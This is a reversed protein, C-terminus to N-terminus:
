KLVLKAPIIYDRRSAFAQDFHELLMQTAIRGMNVADRDLYSYRLNLLDLAEVQDFGMCYVDQGPTLGREMMAKVFGNAIVGNSLLVAEPLGAADVWALALEHAMALTVERESTFVVSEEIPLAGDQMAQRFGALRDQGIQLSTDSIISGIRRYGQQIMTHTALYAGNYNDFYVGDWSTKRAARDILVVPVALNLLATQLQNWGDTSLYGAAPTLLLGKVRQGRLMRLARQEKQPDNDTTCFIVTYGRQDAVESIGALIRGFFEDSASPIVVGIMFSDQTSLGRAVASPQFAYQAVIQNVRERIEESVYGTNNIVRSVTSKSVGAKAAIDRITMNNM